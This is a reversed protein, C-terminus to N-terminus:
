PIISDKRYRCVNVDQTHAGYDHLRCDSRQQASIFGNVIWTRNIPPFTLRFSALAVAGPVDFRNELPIYDPNDNQKDDLSAHSLTPSANATFSRSNAFRNARTNLKKCKLVVRVMDMDISNLWITSHCWYITTPTTHFMTVALLNNLHLFSPVSYDFLWDLTLPYYM